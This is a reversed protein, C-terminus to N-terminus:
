ILSVKSVIQWILHSLAVFGISLCIYGGGPGTGATSHGLAYHSGHQDEPNSQNLPGWGGRTAAPAQERVGKKESKQSENKSAEESGGLLLEIFWM